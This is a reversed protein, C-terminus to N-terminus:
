VYGEAGGQYFHEPHPPRFPLDNKLRQVLDANTIFPVGFAIADADGSVLLRLGSKKDLGQNAILNGGFARKLQPGLAGHGQAERTFIFAIGRQALAQAVYVFTAAPSRDGMGHTDCRPALHVGVRGAGWVSIAADTVELLLRARNEIPGGYADTRQNSGDQLFQDILYGNAAHIEVGDFRALQANQAARRFAEVIDAIEELELARPTVHSKQPRLLSVYGPAAIASPAVPREGNLYVPDSVRGVHWIQAFIRGGAQHVADTTLQWGAVQEPTWIGPVDPYGIAQPSIPVGESIILGAEARQQYYEAMLANPINGTARCRTMPSMVIRNPLSLDGLQLPEFLSLVSM